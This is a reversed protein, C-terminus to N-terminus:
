CVKNKLNTDIDMCVTNKLNTDINMGVSNKDINLEQM